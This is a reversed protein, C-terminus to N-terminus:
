SKKKQSKAKPRIKHKKKKDSAEHLTPTLTIACGASASGENALVMNEEASNKEMQVYQSYFLLLYLALCIFKFVSGIFEVAVATFLYNYHQEVYIADFMFRMNLILLLMMLLMFWVVSVYTRGSTNNFVKKIEFKGTQLYYAFCACCRIIFLPWLLLLFTLIFWCFEIIFDPDAPKQIIYIAGSLALILSITFVALLLAM